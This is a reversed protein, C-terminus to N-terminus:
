SISNSLAPLLEPYTFSFGSTTLKESIVRQSNLFSKGLEGMIFRIFVAPVPMFSPRHLVKGLTRALDLYQIPNPATFNVPGKIDHTELIYLIARILDEIHIWPFWQLGKGIPGGMFFRFPLVMKSLAGGNKGMVVGFRMTVVRVGKTKAEMAENEWNVCVKALFDTGSTAKEDLPKDGKDGYYGAASASLLIVNSNEPLAEVLHRTTLIRSNYIQNKYNDTWLRFINKGALNIIGDMDKLSEQWPGKQTTDASIFQFNKRGSLKHASSTGTAIVKHGNNLLFGSLATGVFGTGGTIFLKM